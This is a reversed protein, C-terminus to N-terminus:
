PPCDGHTCSLFSPLVANIADFPNGIIGLAYLVTATGLVVIGVDGLICLSYGVPEEDVRYTRVFSSAVGDCLGRALAFAALVAFGGLVTAAMWPHM